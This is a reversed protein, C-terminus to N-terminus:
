ETAPTAPPTADPKTEGPTESQPQAPADAGGNAPAAPKQDATPAEAPPTAPTEGAPPTASAEADAPKEPSAPSALAPGGTKSADGGQAAATPTAPQGGSKVSADPEVDYRGEWESRHAFGTVGAMLVWLVTLAVTIKTFVDGAKTGFASQGGLGGFAGAM